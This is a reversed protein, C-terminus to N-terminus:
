TTAPEWAIRPQDSWLQELDYHERSSEDFVHVVFDGFDMLLWEAEQKGEILRPKPGDLITLQEEIEEAIARVQRVNRGTTILFHDTIALVNGVDIIVTNHGLKDDAAQAAAFVWHLPDDDGANAATQHQSM